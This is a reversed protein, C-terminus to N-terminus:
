RIVEKYNDYNCKCKKNYCIVEKMDELKNIAYECNSKINGDYQIYCSFLDCKIFKNKSDCVGLFREGKNQTEKFLGDISQIDDFVINGNETILSINHMINNNICWLHRSKVNEINNNDLLLSVEVNINYQKLLLLNQKIYDNNSSEHWSCIVIVDPIESIIKIKKLFVEKSFNLNSFVHFMNCSNIRTRFEKVREIVLLPEGGQIFFNYNYTLNNSIYNNINSIVKNFIDDNFLKSNDLENLVYCYPCRNNCAMTIDYHIERVNKNEENYIL